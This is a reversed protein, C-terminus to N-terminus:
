PIAIQYNIADPGPNVLELSLHIPQNRPILERGALEGALYEAPAFRRSAVLQDDINTFALILDPFPQEYPAKNLLIVDVLLADAVEPHTRVVLNFVKIERTDVLPPLKCGVLPCVFLYGTRYPEIRSLYDFKLWAIQVVLTILALLSLSPWLLRQSWHSIRKATFEVPAPIINMLLATRSNDYARIKPETKIHRKPEPTTSAGPTEFLNPALPTSAQETATEAPAPQEAEGVLSFVLGPKQSLAEPVELPPESFHNEEAQTDVAQATTLQRAQQEEEDILMEAWSEDSTDQLEEKEERIQRDFLSSSPLPKTEIDLFGDFEYQGKDKSHNDSPDDMDDSILLDDAPAISAAKRVEATAKAPAAEKAPVAAPKAQAAEPKAQAAELKTPVAAPKAPAVPQSAAASSTAAAKSVAKAPTPQTTSTPTSSPATSPAPNTKGPAAGQTAPTAPGVLHEQAKFVHLCSGCRVAGKASQLQAATIRFATACKPCRTVMPTSVPAM